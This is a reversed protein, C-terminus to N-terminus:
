APAPDAVSLRVDVNGSTARSYPCIRHAREVLKEATERDVGPLSVELEVDLSLHEGGLGVTATVASESADIERKAAVLLLASHFCAAYGAAFLEEPNTGDGGEGGMETPLSLALDLRGSSTSVRGKRGGHATASTSYVADM